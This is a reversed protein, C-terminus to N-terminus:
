TATAAMRAELADALIEATAPAHRFFLSPEVVELEILAPRGEADALFDIRGYLLPFPCATLTAAVLAEEPPTLTTLADTGGWDDQVRYDGAVPRKEVAHTIRGEIM